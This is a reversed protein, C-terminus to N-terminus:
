PKVEPAWDDCWPCSLGMGDEPLGTQMLPSDAPVYFIRNCGYCKHRRLTKIDPQEVRRKEAAIMARDYEIWEPSCGCGEGHVHEENM